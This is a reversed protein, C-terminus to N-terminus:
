HLLHLATAQLIPRLLHLSHMTTTSNTSVPHHTYYPPLRALRTLPTLAPRRGAAHPRLLKSTLATLTLTTLTLTSSHPLHPLTTFRLFDPSYLPAAAQLTRGPGREGLYFHQRALAIVAEDFDIADTTISGPHGFATYDLSNPPPVSRSYPGHVELDADRLALLWLETHFAFATCDLGDPPWTAQIVIRAIQRGGSASAGPRCHPELDATLSLCGSSQERSSLASAPRRSGHSTLAAATLVARTVVSRQPRPHIGGGSEM